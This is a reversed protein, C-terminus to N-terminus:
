RRPRILLSTLDSSKQLTEEFRIGTFRERGDCIRVYVEGHGLQKVLDFLQAIHVQQDYTLYEDLPSSM